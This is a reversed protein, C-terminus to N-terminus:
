RAGSQHLLSVTHTPLLRARSPQDSEIFLALLNQKTIVLRALCRSTGEAEVAKAALAKAMCQRSCRRTWRRWSRSTFVDRAPRINESSALLADAGSFGIAGYLVSAAKRPSFGIIPMDGERGSDYKYHVSGFGVIAPGWMTPKEGSASQMMKVLAKADARRTEDTITEIFKAVSVKTPQTKNEAM